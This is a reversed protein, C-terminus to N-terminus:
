EEVPGNAKLDKARKRMEERRTHGIEQADSRAKTLNKVADRHVDDLRSPVIFLNPYLGVTLAVVGFVMMLRDKPGRSSREFEEDERRRKETEYEERKRKTYDTYQSARRRRSLEAM